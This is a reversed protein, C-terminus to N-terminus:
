YGRLLVFLAWMIGLIALSELGRIVKVIWGGMFEFRLLLACIIGGYVLRPDISGEFANSFGITAIWVVLPWSRDLRGSYRTVFVAGLLGLLLLAFFGQM